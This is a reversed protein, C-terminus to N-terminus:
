RRSAKAEYLSADAQRSLTDIARPEGAAVGASISVTLEGDIDRWNQTAVEQAIAEARKAAAVATSNALLLAFEDGGIRAAFDGARVSATLVEGVRRLVTDGAQHGFRDNVPKFHDIDFLLVAVQGVGSGQLSAVHRDFGRRNALGTLPDHYAHRALQDRENRLRESALMAQMGTLSAQRGKERQGALAEASRLGATRKGAVKAELVTAQHVALDYVAPNENADISAVAREAAATAAGLGIVEAHLAQALYLFGQWVAKKQESLESLCEAARSLPAFGALLELVLAALECDERWEAPMEMDETSALAAAQVKYRTKVGEMDGFELLACAWDLQVLVRDYALAARHLLPDQTLPDVADVMAEAAAFQEDALEWLRRQLYSFAVRFHATAKIVPDGDPDELIVAAKALDDDASADIDGGATIAVWARWALALAFMAMDGDCRARDILAQIAASPDGDPGEAAHRVLGYLGSRVVDPWGRREGEAVMAAFEGPTGPLQCEFPRRAAERRAAVDSALLEM